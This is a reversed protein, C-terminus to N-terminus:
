TGFIEKENVKYKAANEHIKLVSAISYEIFLMILAAVAIGVVVVVDDDNNNPVFWCWGWRSCGGRACAGRIRVFGLRHKPTSLLSL